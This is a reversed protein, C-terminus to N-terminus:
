GNDLLTDPTEGRLRNDVAATLCGGACTRYKESGVSPLLVAALEKRSGIGVGVGPRSADRGNALARFHFYQIETQDM